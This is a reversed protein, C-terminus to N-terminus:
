PAKVKGFSLLSAQVMAAHFRARVAPYDKTFRMVYGGTARPKGFTREWNAEYTERDPSVKSRIPPVYAKAM